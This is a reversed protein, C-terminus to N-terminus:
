ISEVLLEDVLAEANPFLHTSGLPLFDVEVVDILEVATLLFVLLLDHTELLLDLLVLAPRLVQDRLHLLLSVSDHAVEDHAHVVLLQGTSEVFPFIHDTLVALLPSKHSLDHQVPLSSGNTGAEPSPGLLGELRPFM